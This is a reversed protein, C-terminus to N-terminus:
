RGQINTQQDFAKGALNQVAQGVSGGVLNGLANGVSNAASAITGTAKFQGTLPTVM